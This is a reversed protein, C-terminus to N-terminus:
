TRRRRKQRYWRARIGDRDHACLEGLLLPGFYVERVGGQPPTLGIREGVFAEGIFRVRGQWHIMGNGKVLRSAWHRPYTWARPRAPLHRRSRQYLQAPVRMGIAEHPRQENYARRWRESRTQQARLTPAAPQLTEDKYVRHLQEHAGNQDPRGPAIFEVRIGLKVWWASLRTLGLAGDAGFPAGNDVRIVRPLGYWRFIRTFARRCDRITPRTLLVVALIYRSALDRVTLPDVRTGDGTRFWGKFDVTWVENARRALTLKPRAILRATAARRRRPRSLGWRQLWRSIAAESPLARWGFRRRLAWRLKPAGWRPHRARWRRIRALWVRSPRNHVRQAVRRRDQLGPRGRLTFRQMWKYATKRSISWCRCLQALPIKRRLWERLFQWRQQPSCANKWPM